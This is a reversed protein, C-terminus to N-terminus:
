QQQLTLKTNYDSIQNVKPQYVQDQGWDGGGM